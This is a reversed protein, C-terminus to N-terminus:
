IFLFIVDISTFIIGKYIQYDLQLLMVLDDIQMLAKRAYKAGVFLLQHRM